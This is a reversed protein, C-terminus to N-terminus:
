AEAKAVGDEGNPAHLLKYGRAELARRVLMTNDPNDEVYLINHTQTMM